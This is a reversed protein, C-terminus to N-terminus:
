KISKNFRNLVFRRMIDRIPLAYLVSRGVRADDIAYIILYETIGNQTSKMISIDDSDDTYIDILYKRKDFTINKNLHTKHYTIALWLKSQYEKLYQVQQRTDSHSSIQQNLNAM